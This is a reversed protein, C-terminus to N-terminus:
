DASASAKRRRAIAIGGAGLALLLGFSVVSSAEPVASLTGSYAGHNDGNVTDNVALFLDGGGAPVVFSGGYGVYFSDSRSPSASFTGVVAGFRIDAPDTTDTTM